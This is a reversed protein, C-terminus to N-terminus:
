QDTSLSRYLKKMTQINKIIESAPSHSEPLVKTQIIYKIVSNDLNQLTYATRSTPFVRLMGAVVTDIDLKVFHGTIRKLAQITPIITDDCLTQKYLGGNGNDVALEKLLACSAKSVPLQALNIFDAVTWNHKYQNPRREGTLNYYSRFIPNHNLYIIHSYLIAILEEFPLGHLNVPERPIPAVVIYRAAPTRLSSVGKLFTKLTRMTTLAVNPILIKVNKSEMRKRGKHGFRTFVVNSTLLQFMHLKYNLLANKHMAAETYSKLHRVSRTSTLFTSSYVNAMYGISGTNPGKDHKNSAMVEIKTGPLIM